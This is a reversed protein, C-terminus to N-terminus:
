AKKSSAPLLGYKWAIRLPPLKLRFKWALGVSLLLACIGGTGIWWSGDAIGVAALRCAIWIVSSCLFAGILNLSLKDFYLLGVNSALIILVVLRVFGTLVFAVTVLLLNRWELLVLFAGLQIIIASVAAVWLWKFNGLTEIGTTLVVTLIQFGSAAVLWPVLESALEWGPGFLFGVSAPLVVMAIACVPWVIWASLSLLDTWIRQTERQTGRDHRFEPALVQVIAGQAHQFPLFGLMEARNWHGLYHTGLLRSMTFKHALGVLFDVFRLSTLGNSYAADVKSHRLPALGWLLKGCLLWSGITQIMFAILASVVLAEASPRHWVVLAGVVMGILNAIFVLVSLQRFLGLRRACGLGLNVLPSLFTGMALLRIAPSAAPENWLSAWFEATLVAAAALLSGGILSRFVLSRLVLQNVETQRMVTQAIGGGALINAVGAVSLAVAYAGFMSPNVVRSTIAAYGFQIVVTLFQAGYMWSASRLM